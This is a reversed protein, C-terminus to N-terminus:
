GTRLALERRMFPKTRQFGSFKLRYEQGRIKGLYKRRYIIKGFDGKVPDGFYEGEIWFFYDKEEQDVVHFITVLTNGFKRSCVDRVSGEVDYCRQAEKKLLVAIFIIIAIASLCDKMDM